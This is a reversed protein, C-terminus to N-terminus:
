CTGLEAMKLLTLYRGFATDFPTTNAASRLRGLERGRGM